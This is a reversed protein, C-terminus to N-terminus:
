LTKLKKLKYYNKYKHHNFEAKPSSVVFTSSCFFCKKEIILSLRQCGCCFNFNQTDKM